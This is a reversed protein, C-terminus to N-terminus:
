HQSYSVCISYRLYSFFSFFTVFTAALIFFLLEAQTLLRLRANILVHFLQCCKKTQFFHECFNQAREFSYHLLACKRLKWQSLTWLHIACVTAAVTYSSCWVDSTIYSLFRNHCDSLLLLRVHKRKPALGLPQCFKTARRQSRRWEKRCM